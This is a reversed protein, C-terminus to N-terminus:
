GGDAGGISKFAAMELVGIRGCESNMLGGAYSSTNPNGPWILWIFM